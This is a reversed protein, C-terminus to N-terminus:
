WPGFRDKTDRVGLGGESKPLCVDCWAVKSHKSGWLFLRCLSTIKDIIARPMPFIGLWFAQVGQM